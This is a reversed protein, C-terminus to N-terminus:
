SSLFINGLAINFNTVKREVELLKNGNWFFIIKSQSENVAM